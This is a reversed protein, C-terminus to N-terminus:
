HGLTKSYPLFKLFMCINLLHWTDKTAGHSLTPWLLVKANTVAEGTIHGHAFLLIAIRQWKLGPSQALPPCTAWPPLHKPFHLSAWFISCERVDSPPLLSPTRSSACTGWAWEPVLLLAPHPLHPLFHLVLPFLWPPLIRFPLLTTLDGNPHCNTSDSSCFFFMSQSM